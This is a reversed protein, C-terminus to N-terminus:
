KETVQKGTEQKGAMEAETSKENGRRRVSKISKTGRMKHERQKESTEQQRKKQHRGKKIDAKRQKEKEIDIRNGAGTKRRKEDKM